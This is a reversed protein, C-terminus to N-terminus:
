SHCSPLHSPAPFRAGFNGICTIGWVHHVEIRSLQSNTLFRAVKQPIGGNIGRRLDPYLGVHGYINTANGNQGDCWKQSCAHLWFTMM